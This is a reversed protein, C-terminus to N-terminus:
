VVRHVVEGRQIFRVVNEACLSLGDAIAEPTTGGTHPTLVVNPLGLLPDDRPVPERIFVDIGAGGLAGSRLAEALAESDVVDGRATNILVAGRKMRGIQSPGLLGRTAPTSRVHLSVVDAQGLLADLSEVYEFGVRNAKEADPHFTWAIVRMGICRGLEALRTGIAGTGVIGLTKGRCQVLMGREWRGEHLSATLPVLRRAVALMLALCHEAMADASAGPTNSVVIGLARAADLDVNDTGTGWIALHRLSDRAAELVPAPFKCYGRINVVTHAGHVREILEEASPPPSTYVRTEAVARIRELAPTGSIISPSDDPIVVM